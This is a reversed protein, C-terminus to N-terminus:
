LNYNRARCLRVSQELQFRTIVVHRPRVKITLFQVNRCLLIM